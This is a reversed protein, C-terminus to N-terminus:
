KEEIYKKSLECLNNKFHECKDCEINKYVCYEPKLWKPKKNSTKTSVMDYFGKCNM